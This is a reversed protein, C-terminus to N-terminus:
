LYEKRISQLIEMAARSQNLTYFHIGPAGSDLLEKVQHISYRLSAETLKDPDNEYKQLEDILSQPIQTGAMSTFKEIQKFNTIPMLGPVIPVNIGTNRCREVFDFYVKNDFFLQTVLFDTGADVKEKLHKMDEEANKAETHVEPYAAGGISFDLGTDNIFRILDSAYAFGDEPPIFETEGKPPDGRLAMINHIGRRYFTELSKRIEDRSSGVCTFHAMSVIGYEDQIHTVWELTKERTSGGAGYTVSIFDPNLVKLENITRFLRKEGEDSKPPFFEFSFLPQKRSSDNLIDSIKKM